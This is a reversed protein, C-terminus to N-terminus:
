GVVRIGPTAHHIFAEAVEPRELRKAVFEEIAQQILGNRAPRGDLIKGLIDLDRLHEDRLRVSIQTQPPGPPRGRRSPVQQYEANFSIM